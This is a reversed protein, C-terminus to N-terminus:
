IIVLSGNSITDPSVQLLLVYGLIGARYIASYRVEFHASNKVKDIKFTCACYVCQVRILHFRQWQTQLTWMFGTIAQGIHFNKALSSNHFHIWISGLLLGPESSELYKVAQWSSSSYISAMAFCTKQVLCGHISRASCYFAGLELVLAENLVKWYSRGEQPHCCPLM